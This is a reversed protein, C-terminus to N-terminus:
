LQEILDEVYIELRNAKTLFVRDTVLYITGDSVKICDNVLPVIDSVYDAIEKKRHNFVKISINRM